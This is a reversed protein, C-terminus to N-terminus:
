AASKRGEIICVYMYTYIAFSSTSRDQGVHSGIYQIDKLNATHKESQKGQLTEHGMFFNLNKITGLGRAARTVARAVAAILRRSVCASFSLRPLM